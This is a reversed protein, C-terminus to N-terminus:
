IIGLKMASHPHRAKPPRPWFRLQREGTGPPKPCSFPYGFLM